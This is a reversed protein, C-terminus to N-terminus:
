RALAAYAPLLELGDRARWGGVVAEAVADFKVKKHALMAALRVLTQRDAEDAADWM